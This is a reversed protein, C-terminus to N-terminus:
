PLSQHLSGTKLKWSGTDLKWGRTGRRRGHDDDARAQGTSLGRPLGCLAPRPHDEVFHTGAPHGGCVLGIGHGFQHARIAETGVQGVPREAQQFILQAPETRQNDGAGIFRGKGRSIRQRHITRCKAPSHGLRDHPM